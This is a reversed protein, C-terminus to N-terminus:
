NNSKMNQNVFIKFFLILNQLLEYKQHKWSLFFRRNRLRVPTGEPIKRFQLSSLTRVITDMQM